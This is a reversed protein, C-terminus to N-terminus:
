NNKSLNELFREQDIQRIKRKMLKVRPAAKHRKRSTAKFLIPGEM